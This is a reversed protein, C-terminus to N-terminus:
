DYYVEGRANLRVSWRRFLEEPPEFPDRAEKLLAALRSELEAMTGAHEPSAALDRMQYPDAANDFLQRVGDIFRVYTHRATRVGRYARGGKAATYQHFPAHCALLAADVPPAAGERIAPTWDRGQCREPVECGALGLLTPMLDITSIPAEVAAPGLTRRPDRVLMPVLVSEDYHRQKRFFGQSGLMDGHDATFIVVTDRAHGTEELAALLRGFALDLAECHAYYGALEKRAVAEAAAPVNPRLLVDEPRHRSRFEEPATGYPDHPPGWSLFLAFPERAQGALFRRALEVQAFSEYGPLTEPEPSDGYCPADWYDHNCEFGRWLGFGLRREPPVFRRRGRGDIHWKGIYATQHGGAALCEALYPGPCNAALCQDNAVMGNLHPYLGTMLTARHPSCVPSNSVANTFRVGSAAFADLNPTALNPDGAHSLAQARWQDGFVFLLNPGPM